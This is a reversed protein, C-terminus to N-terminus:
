KAEDAPHLVGISIRGKALGMVIIGAILVVFYPVFSWVGDLVEVTQLGRLLGLALFVLGIVLLSGGLLGFAVWRGVGRLPAVTQQRIYARVLDVVESFSSPSQRTELTVRENLWRFAAERLSRLSSHPARLRRSRRWRTRLLLGFQDISVKIPCVRAM